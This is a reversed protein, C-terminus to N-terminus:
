RAAARRLRDNLARGLGDDPVTQAYIVACDAHDCERFFHFLDQAYAEVSPVVHCQRFAGDDKPAELGIFGADSSAVAASAEHVLRVHAAPAYHRHRTGPSKPGDGTEQEGVRVAGIAAELVEVSVAGPRLVVPPEATCDLVTSEVGADTRGGKLICAIRGDLDEAVAEWTTPSPRGSRNASPAAVPTDCAQLFAQATEHRPLRIGITELGATVVEPVDPHKPLILTLPGPIFRDLLRAATDPVEEVVQPVQARTALHVILPNDAPRGKAEFIAEVAAPQFADAGLGYVTETPFAVLRGSRLISAAKTPSSTRVTDM